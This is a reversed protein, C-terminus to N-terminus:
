DAPYITVDARNRLGRALTLAAARLREGNLYEIIKPRAEDYPVTRAPKKGTVRIIHFGYRDEVVPSIAGTSLTFVLADLPDSLSGRSFWGLDGGTGATPCESAERALATFDEGRRLREHVADILRRAAAKKELLWRPEIRVLIHSIRVKDPVRFVQPNADYYRRLEQDAFAGAVGPLQALMATVTLRREVERRLVDPSLSLEKLTQELELPSVVTQQLAALERAIREESVTTGRRLSEQWLLERDILGELAERRLAEPRPAGSRRQLRILERDLEEATIAIGNVQAVPQYPPAAAARDPVAWPALLLAAMIGWFCHRIIM